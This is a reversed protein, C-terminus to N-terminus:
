AMRQRAPVSTMTRRRLKLWARSLPWFGSTYSLRQFRAQLFSRSKPGACNRAVAAPRVVLPRATPSKSAAAAAATAATDHATHEEEPREQDSAMTAAAGAATHADEIAEGIAEEIAEELAIVLTLRRGYTLPRVRHVVAAPYVYMDGQQAGIEDGGVDLEGGGFDVDTVSLM